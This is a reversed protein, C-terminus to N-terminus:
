EYSDIFLYTFINPSPKVGLSPNNRVDNMDKIGRAIGCLIAISFMITLSM